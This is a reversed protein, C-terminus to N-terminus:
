LTRPCEPPSHLVRVKGFSQKPNVSIQSTLGAFPNAQRNGEFWRQSRGIGCTRGSATPM